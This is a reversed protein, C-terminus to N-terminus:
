ASYDEKAPVECFTVEDGTLIAATLKGGFVCGTDIGWCTHDEGHDIRVEEHVIHGYFVSEPGRWQETWFVSGNPQSLDRKLGVFNGKPNLYRCMTMLKNSQKELPKAELGGHVVIISEAVYIYSPLTAMWDLDFETFEQYLKLKDEKFQMPNKGAEGSAVKREWERWRVYKLEHNGLVCEAGMERAKRVVGASDPGRDVLDGALVLRDETSYEVKRLLEEFEELCGHIDGVIITRRTAM